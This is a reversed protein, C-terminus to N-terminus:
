AGFGSIIDDVSSLVREANELTMELGLAEVECHYLRLLPMMRKDKDYDYISEWVLNHSIVHFVPFGRYNKTGVSYGYEEAMKFPKGNEQGPSLSQKLNICGLLVEFLPLTSTHVPCEM